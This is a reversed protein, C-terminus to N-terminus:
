REALDQVHKHTSTITCIPLQALSKLSTQLWIAHPLTRVRAHQKTCLCPMVTGSWSNHRVWTVHRACQMASRQLGACSEHRNAATLSSCRVKFGALKFENRLLEIDLRRASHPTVQVFPHSKLM